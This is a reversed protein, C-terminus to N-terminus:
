VPGPIRYALLYDATGRGAAAMVCEAKVPGLARRVVRHLRGVPREDVMAEPPTELWDFM